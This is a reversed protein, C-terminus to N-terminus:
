TKSNQPDPSRYLLSTELIDNIKMWPVDLRGPGKLLNKVYQPKSFVAEKVEDMSLTVPASLIRATQTPLYTESVVLRGNKVEWNLKFTIDGQENQFLVENPKERECLSYSKDYSFPNLNWHSTELNNGNEGNAGIIVVNPSKVRNGAKDIVLNGGLSVTYLKNSHIDDSEVFSFYGLRKNFDENTRELIGTELNPELIFVSIRSDGPLSSQGDIEFHTEMDTSLIINTYFRSRKRCDTPNGKSDFFYDAYEGKYFSTKKIYPLEPLSFALFNQGLDIQEVKLGKTDREPFKWSEPIRITESQPNLESLNDM